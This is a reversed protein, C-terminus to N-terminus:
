SEHGYLLLLHDRSRFDPIEPAPSGYSRLEPLAEDLQELAEERTM